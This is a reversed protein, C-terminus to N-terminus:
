KTRTKPPVRSVREKLPAFVRDALQQAAEERRAEDARWGRWKFRARGGVLLGAGIFLAALIGLVLLGMGLALLGLSPQGPHTALVVGFTLALFGAVLGPFM